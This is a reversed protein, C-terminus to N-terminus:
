DSEFRIEVVAPRDWLARNALAVMPSM